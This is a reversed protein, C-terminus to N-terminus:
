AECPTTRRSAPVPDQAGCVAEGLAWGRCQEFLARRAARGVRLDPDAGCAGLEGGFAFYQGLSGNHVSQESRGDVFGLLNEEVGFGVCRDGGLEDEWSEQEGRGGSAVAPAQVGRYWQDWGPVPTGVDRDRAEAGREAWEAQDVVSVDAALERGVCRFADGHRGLAWASAEWEAGVERKEVAGAGACCAGYRARLMLRQLPGSKATQDV